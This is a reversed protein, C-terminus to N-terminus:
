WNVIGGQETKANKKKLQKIAIKVEELSTLTNETRKGIEMIRAFVNNIFDEQKREEETEAPM